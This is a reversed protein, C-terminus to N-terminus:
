SLMEGVETERRVVKRKFMRGERRGRVKEVKIVAESRERGVAERKFM